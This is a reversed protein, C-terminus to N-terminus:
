NEFRVDEGLRFKLRARIDALSAGVLLGYEGADARFGHALVDWYAFDRPSLELAVRETEGPRLLHTKAFAKLEKECREVKPAIPAVYLQVIERGAVRGTNTVPVIVKLGERRPAGYAFTTYSLGYGFPFRPAIKEHDYWRYGVYFRENYIVSEGNYTGARATPTDAYVKPWTCPLKGSPNVEGFLVRALPRGAEQGLCPQQVLTPCADTWPMEMPSGSHNIVVLNKLGWGLMEAIQEDHGKPEAMTERDGGESEMARPGHGIRTGTFVLVADAKECTTRLDGTAQALVSPTDWGFVLRGNADGQQVYDVIVTYVKDKELTADASLAGHGQVLAQEDLRISALSVPGQQLRFKYLGSEPARVEASYRVTAGPPQDGWTGGVERVFDMPRMEGGFNEKPWTFRRWGKVSFGAEKSTEDVTELCLNNIPTPLSTDAEAGLPFHQIEVGDGLYERLGALPTIEYLPRAACSSGFHTHEQDALQGVVVVRRMASKKLPLVGKENKLLVIAEEGIQRCMAQHRATLREGPDRPRDGLFGTKAMPWLVHMVKEDITAEPVRGARGEDALPLRNNFHDTFHVIKRGQNMEIDAGALAAPVTSHHGGWDSVVQGRFHWQNRLIGLQLYANESCFVGRFRNYATMLAWCDGEVIAARFVPLYIEQLTREDVLTDVTTRALEQNNVAFHKVTCAVDHSQVARILPVVLKASLVPDESLYEWNRGCLPNRMINVGPGLMQDKGRARMQEGMVDGHVVALEPNWTCALASLPPLVTSRDDVGEVYPWGERGHEPKMAHSCDSMAWENSIGVRPLAKLYMTAVGGLLSVKEDLTMLAVKERIVRECEDDSMPTGGLAVSAAIAMVLGMALKKM